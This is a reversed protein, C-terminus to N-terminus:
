EAMRTPWPQVPFDDDNAITEELHRATVAMGIDTMKTFDRSAIDLEGSMSAAHLEAVIEGWLLRVNLRRSKPKPISTM